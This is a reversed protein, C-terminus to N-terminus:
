EGDRSIRCINARCSGWQRPFLEWRKQSKRRRERGMIQMLPFVFLGRGIVFLEM